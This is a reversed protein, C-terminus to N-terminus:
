SYLGNVIELQETFTSDEGALDGSEDEGRKAAILRRLSIEIESLRAHNGETFRIM